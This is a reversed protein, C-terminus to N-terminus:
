RDLAAQVLAHMNAAPTRIGIGCAPAVVDIGDRWLGRVTAGVREPTSWELQYTSVNGVLVADPWAKRLARTSVMSDFSFATMPVRALSPIITRCDGCVHVLVEAGAESIATSIRSLIPEVFEAFWTPGLIDGTGSPEAILIVRAGAEAQAIAFATITRECLALAAHAVEPATAMERYFTAADMLSTMLSVPGVVAGIVPRPDDGTALRRIAGLVVPMRAAAAPDPPSAEAIQRVTTFAYGTVRPETEISGLDVEAGLTEAEITMCFPVSTHPLGLGSALRGAVSAMAGPDTHATSGYGAVSMLESSACTMMGGPCVVRLDALLSM